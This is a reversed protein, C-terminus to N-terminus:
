NLLFLMTPDCVTGLICFWFSVRFFNVRHPGSDFSAITELSIITSHFSFYHFSLM